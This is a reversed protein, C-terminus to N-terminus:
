RTVRTNSFALRDALTRLLARSLRLQCGLSLMELSPRTLEAVISDASTEVTAQRNSAEGRIYAMEGFCDGVRLVDLLKGQLTVKAEGEALFYLSDGPEGERVVISNGPVRKWDAGNVLEWLEADVLEQLLPASRLATFKASDPVRQDSFGLRGVRALELALEAWDPYRDEASKQLMRLVVPDLAKPLDPRVSSPAIPDKFLVNDLVEGTNPGQFPRHGTLLEYLLVGLSFMDSQHTLPRDLIQEPAIYAPTGVRMRHTTEMSRVFAAGFDAVKIDTGSVVLINAPKIDRHVVGERYAYDLAGCCKFAIQIVDDIPLLRGRVTYGHLNGGPVYEMAVYGQQDDAMADLISVIHPHTLKGALAAESVIKGRAYDSLTPGGEPRYVKLAVDSNYFEDYALYVVSSGGRGLERKIQYKGVRDHMNGGVSVDLVGSRSNLQLRAWAEYLIM